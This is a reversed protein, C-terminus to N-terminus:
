ACGSRRRRRCIDSHVRNAIPCLPATCAAPPPPDPGAPLADFFGDYLRQGAPQMLEFDGVRDQMFRLLAPLLVAM